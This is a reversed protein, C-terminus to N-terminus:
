FIVFINVSFMTTISGIMFAILGSLQNTRNQIWDITTHTINGSFDKKFQGKVSEKFEPQSLKDQLYLYTVIFIAMFVVHRTTIKIEM